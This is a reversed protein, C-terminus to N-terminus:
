LNKKSSANNSFKALHNKLPLNKFDYIYMYKVRDSKDGM